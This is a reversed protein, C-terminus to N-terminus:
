YKKIIVFNISAQTTIDISATNKVTMSFGTFTESSDIFTSYGSFGTIYASANGTSFNALALFAYDEPMTYRFFIMKSSNASITVDNEHMHVNRMYNSSNNLNHTLQNLYSDAKSSAEAIRAIANEINEYELYWIPPTRLTTAINELYQGPTFPIFLSNDTEIILAEARAYITNVGDTIVTPDNEDGSEYSRIACREIIQHDSIEDRVNGPASFLTLQSTQVLAQNNGCKLYRTSTHRLRKATYDYSELPYHERFVSITPENGAGYILTMDIANDGDAWTASSVETGTMFSWVSNNLCAYKHDSVPTGTLVGGDILQDFLVTNGLVKKIKIIMNRSISPLFKNFMHADDTISTNLEADLATINTENTKIRGALGTMPVTADSGITTEISSIDNENTKVRGLIGTMPTTTDSGIATQISTINGEATDMRTDLASIDSALASYDASIQDYLYNLYEDVSMYTMDALLPSTTPTSTNEPLLQETGGVQVPYTLDLAPSVSTETPTALEYYVKVNQDVMAQKFTTADTYALDRILLQGSSNIAVLMDDTRNNYLYNRTSPMYNAMKINAQTDNDEVPPFSNTGTSFWKYPTNYSFDYNGLDVSGIRTYAKSESLEDYVSGASKMGTPFYTSIPLSLTSYNELLPNEANYILRSGIYTDSGGSSFNLRWCFMGGDTDAGWGGGVLTIRNGTNQWYYDCMYTTSSGGVSTPLAILPNNNDMGLTKSKGNSTANTYGVASYDGTFTDVAYSSPKYCIYAVNDKINLGDVFQWLNGFINEIGRYMVATAGANALCGSKMGLSDLSGSNIQASTSTNGQGLKSQSNYDAYEVLYLLELLFYHYDLQQWNDGKAQAQTRFNTINTSVQSAVGSKSHAGSSTTYRGIYFGKSYSAGTFESQSIQMYEYTSDQWRKYWFSPIYTMVEGNSGDWKFNPMGLVANVTGNDALNVTKIESWPYISDFDNTVASGDHTANATKGVGDDTRTWASSSTSLERKIGFIQTSKPASTNSSKLGTANFSILSGLTSNFYPLNGLHSSLWNEVEQTTTLSDIGVLTLDILMVNKAQTQTWGSSRADGIAITGTRNTTSTFIHTVKEWEDNKTLFKSIGGGTDVYNNTTGYVEAKLYYSHGNYIPYGNIAQVRGYQATAIFTLINNSITFSANVYSWNTSDAFNGNQVLQNFKITNGKITDLRGLTNHKAPTERYLFEQDILSQSVKVIDSLEDLDDASARSTDTPHRHDGRAYANESGTSATGDMLPTSTSANPSSLSGANVWASQSASWIYLTFNPSTGVQYADGPTGTPHATQLDSLTAYVDLIELGEGQPGEPGQPGTQGTEGQAGRLSQSTYSDGNSLTITMTYDNNFSISTIGVGDTGDRGPVLTFQFNVSDNEWTVTVDPEEGETASASINNIFSEWATHLEEENEYIYSFSEKFASMLKLMKCIQEYYTKGDSFFYKNQNQPQVMPDKAWDVTEKYLSDYKVFPDKDWDITNGYVKSYEVNPDYQRM